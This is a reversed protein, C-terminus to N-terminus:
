LGTGQNKMFKKANATNLGQAAPRPGARFKKRRLTRRSKRIPFVPLYASLYGEALYCNISRRVSAVLSEAEAAEMELYKAVQPSTKGSALLRAAQFENYTLVNDLYKLAKNNRLIYLWDDPTPTYAPMGYPSIHGAAILSNIRQTANTLIRSASSEDIYAKRAIENLSMGRASMRAIAFQRETLRYSLIDDAASSAAANKWAGEPVSGMVPLKAALSAFVAKVSGRAKPEPPAAEAKMAPGVSGTDSAFLMRLHSRAEFAETNEGMSFYMDIVKQVMGTIVPDSPDMNTKLIQFAQLAYSFAKKKEEIEWYDEMLKICSEAVNLHWQGYLTVSGTYANSEAFLAKKIKGQRRYVEALMSYARVTSAHALGYEREFIRKQEEVVPLANEWDECSVYLNAIDSLSKAYEIHENTPEESSGM